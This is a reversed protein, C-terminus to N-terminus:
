YTRNRTSWVWPAQSQISFILLASLQQQLKSEREREREREREAEGGEVAWLRYVNHTSM